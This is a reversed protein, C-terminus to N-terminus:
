NSDQGSKVEVSKVLQDARAKGFRPALRRLARGKAPDSTVLAQRDQAAEPVGPSFDNQSQQAPTGGRLLLTAKASYEKEKGNSIVYGAVAGVVAALLVILGRRRMFGFFASIDMGERRQPDAM